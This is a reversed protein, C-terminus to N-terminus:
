SMMRGRLLRNFARVTAFELLLNYLIYTAFAVVGYYIMMSSIFRIGALSVMYVIFAALVMAEVCYRTMEYWSIRQIVGFQMGMSKLVLYDKIKIKMLARLILIEVIVLAFLIGVSIAIFILREMVKDPNYKGSSIRLTSVATYGLKDLKRIVYDTKTYNKIYVSAQTSKRPFFLQFAKESVELYGGSQDNFDKGSVSIEINKEDLDALEKSIGKRNKNLKIRIVNSGPVAKEVPLSYFEYGMAPVIYNQSVRASLLMNDKDFCEKTEPIEDSIALLFQDYGLYRVAKEDYYYEMTIQDGDVPASLMHCLEGHFYIQSTEERLLGVIKFNNHYYNKKGMINNPTFYITVEQNLKKSDGYLVIENRKEPMRGESLDDKDICYTSKMFKNKKKFVPTKDSQLESTTGTSWDVNEYDGGETGYEFTYDKGENVYYNIDNAYDYPDAITVYRVSCMKEIDKDTIAKGDKRRVSLRSDNKQYYISRDYKRTFTDDANKYLQGIFIFSVVATMLFFSRFLLARGHQTRTNMRAFSWAIQKQFRRKEKDDKHLVIQSKNKESIDGEAPTALEELAGEAVADKGIAEGENVRIDEVIEGDHLRVKRTVYPEAQEYNHTVMLILRDKSLGKLLRIIQEGTESDLNGTPEDAIIVETHKALARAISLRQKQGSSLESARQNEMGKLGVRELYYMARKKAEEKDLEMILLASMINDLASYHGILNYNQFVFGIKNRRFEEWESVDYQFTPEGEYFLEGEDFTDMGSIINLLTSKGSGSEGTIAVFEGVKFELNIRRLAQTVSTDTYYYKSINQLVVM